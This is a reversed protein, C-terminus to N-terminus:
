KRDMLNIMVDVLKTIERQRRTSCRTLVGPKQKNSDDIRSNRGQENGTSETTDDRRNKDGAMTESTTKEERMAEARKNEDEDKIYENSSTDTIIQWM